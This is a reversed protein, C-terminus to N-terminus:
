GPAFLFPYSVIVIGGGLPEPYQLKMMTNNLCSEVAKNGMSSAKTQSASVEGKPTITFKLSVKGGLGPDKTLERQYCYRFQNLHRKIVADIQSRDMSGMVISESSLRVSGESKVGLVGDGFDRADQGFGDLGLGGGDHATGGGGISDGRSSLGGTGMQVGKAGILGGLGDTIGGSLAGSDLGAQSGVTDWVGMIGATSAVERDEREARGGRAIEMLADRAGRKGEKRKARKGERTVTEKKEIQKVEPKPPAEILVNAFRDPVENIGQSMAPESTFAVVALMAAAFASFGLTGILPLDFSTDAKPSRRGPQTLRAVYTIPGIQVVVQDEPAVDFRRIGEADEVGKDALSTSASWDKSIACALRGDEVRFLEFPEHVPLNELPMPFDASGILVRGTEADLHRVDLLTPGWVAAIELVLAAKTDLGMDGRGAGSATVAAMPDNSNLLNMEHSRLEGKTRLDM